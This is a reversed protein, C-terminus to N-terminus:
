KSPKEYFINVRFVQDSQSVRDLEQPPILDKALNPWPRGDHCFFDLCFINLGSKFKQTM